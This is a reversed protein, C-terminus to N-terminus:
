HLFQLCAIQRLEDAEGQGGFLSGGSGPRTRGSCPRGPGVRRGAEDGQGQRSGAWVGRPIGSNVM